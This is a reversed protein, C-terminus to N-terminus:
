AKEARFIITGKKTGNESYNAQVKLALELDETTNSAIVKSFDKWFLSSIYIGESFVSDSSDAIQASINIDDRGTNRVNVRQPNSLQGPLLTGFNLINRDIEISIESSNNIDPEGVDVKLEIGPFFPPNALPLYDFDSGNVKYPRDCFGDSNLDNSIQSFGTGNLNAWFNGGLFPGGIINMGSTKTTNWVNGVTDESKVNVSNNFYNNYIRNDASNELLYIGSRNSFVVTNNALENDHCEERLSVGTSSNSITNNYVRSDFVFTLYIGSDCDKIRNDRLVTRAQVDYIDIGTSCNIIDNRSILNNGGCCAISVGEGNSLQNQFLINDWCQAGIVIDSEKVTNNIVLNKSCGEDLWIGNQFLNNKSLTSNMTSQLYVGYQNKFLNNGEITCNKVQELCIGAQPCGIGDWGSISVGSDSNSTQNAEPDSSNGESNVSNATSADESHDFTEGSGTINFGTITVNDARVQFVSSNEDKARILVDDPNKSESGITLGSINVVVNEEYEGAKVIVYGESTSNNIAAQISNGPEVYIIEASGIGASLLFFIIVVTAGFTQRFSCDGIFIIKLVLGGTIQV